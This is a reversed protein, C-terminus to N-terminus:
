RWLSLQRAAGNHAHLSTSSVAGHQRALTTHRSASISSPYQLRHLTCRGPLLLAQSCYRVSFLILIFYSQAAIGQLPQIYLTCYFASTSLLLEDAVKKERKEKAARDQATALRCAAQEIVGDTSEEAVSSRKNGLDSDGRDPDSRRRTAQQWGSCAQFTRETGPFKVSLLQTGHRTPFHEIGDDQHKHLSTPRAQM